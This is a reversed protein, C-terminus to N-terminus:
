SLNVQFIAVLVKTHPTHAHTDTLFISRSLLIQSVYWWMCIHSIRYHNRPLSTLFTESRSASEHYGDACDAAVCICAHLTGCVSVSETLTITVVVVPVKLVPVLVKLLQFM